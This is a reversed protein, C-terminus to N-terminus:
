ANAVPMFCFAMIFSTMAVGFRASLQSVSSKPPIMLRSYFIDFPQVFLSLREKMRASSEGERKTNVFNNFLYSLHYRFLRLRLPQDFVCCLINEKSLTM